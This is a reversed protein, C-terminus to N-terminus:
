FDESNERILAAIKGAIAQSGRPSPHVRDVAHFSLVGEPVLAKLSLFYVGDDLEAMAQLRNEFKNGILRCGDIISDKGPTRMYGLFIVRAGDFRAKAVMEPITGSRGDQAILRNLTGECPGCGCGFILDNGGGNMIVWDWKGPVYQSPIRMGQGGSIPLIYHMRSATVSRDIVSVGLADELYHSVSQGSLGNWALMSDGMMLMRATSESSPRETCASVLGFVFGCFIARHVYSFSSCLFAKRCTSLMCLLLSVMRTVGVDKYEIM